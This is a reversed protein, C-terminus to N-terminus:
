KFFAIATSVALTIAGGIATIIKASNSSKEKVVAIDTQLKPIDKYRVEKVEKEISELKSLILEQVKKGNTAM